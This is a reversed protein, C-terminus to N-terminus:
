SFVQYQSGEPLPAYFFETEKNLQLALGAPNWYFSQSRGSLAAGAGGMYMGQIGSGFLALYDGPYGAAHLGHFTFLTVSLTLLLVLIKEKIGSMRKIKKGYCTEYEVNCSKM